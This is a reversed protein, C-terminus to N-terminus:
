ERAWTLQICAILGLLTSGGQLYYEAHETLLEVETASLLEEADDEDETGAKARLAKQAILRVEDSLNWESTHVDHSMHPWRTWLDTKRAKAKDKKSGDEVAVYPASTRATPSFSNSAVREDDHEFSMNSEDDNYSSDSSSGSQNLDLTSPAPYALHSTLDLAHSTNLARLLSAYESLESHLAQPVRKRKGM